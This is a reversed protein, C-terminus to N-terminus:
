KRKFLGKVSGIAKNVVNFLPGFGFTMGKIRVTYIFFYVLSPRSDTDSGAITNILSLSVDLQHRLVGPFHWLQAM